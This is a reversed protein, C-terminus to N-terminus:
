YIYQIHVYKYGLEKFNMHVLYFVIPISMFYTMGCIETQIDYLWLTWFLIKECHHMNVIVIKLVYM